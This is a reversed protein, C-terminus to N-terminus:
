PPGMLFTGGTVTAGSNLSVAITIIQTAHSSINVPISVVVPGATTILGSNYLQGGVNQNITVLVGATGVVTFNLNLTCSIGGTSNFPNTGMTGAPVTPASFTASAGSGSAVLGGSPAGWTWADVVASCGQPCAAEAADIALQDAAAQSDASFYTNAAVTEDPGYNCTVTQETNWYGCQVGGDLATAVRDEIYADAMADAEAQSTYSSFSGAPLTALKTTDDWLLLGGPAASFKLENCTVDQESSTYLTAHTATNVLVDALAQGCQKFLTFYATNIVTQSTGAPFTQSIETGDACPVTVTIPGGDPPPPYPSVNTNKPIIVTVPYTGPECSVGEPCEVLFSSEPNGNILGGPFDGGVLSFGSLDGLIKDSVQCCDKSRCDTAM